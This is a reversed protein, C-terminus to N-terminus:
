NVKEKFEDFSLTQDTVYLEAFVKGSYDKWESKGHVMYNNIAKEFEPSGDTFGVLFYVKKYGKQRLSDYIRYLQELARDDPNGAVAAVFTLSAINDASTDIHTIDSHNVVVYVKGEGSSLQVDLEKQIAAATCAEVYDDYFTYPSSLRARVNALVGNADRVVLINEQLGTNIGDQPLIQDVIEVAVSYKEQIYNRMLAVYEQDSERRNSKNSNRNM